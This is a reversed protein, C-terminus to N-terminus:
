DHSIVWIAYPSLPFSLSASLFLSFWLHLISPYFSLVVHSSSGSAVDPSGLQAWPLPCISAPIQLSSNAPEPHALMEWAVKEMQLTSGLRCTDLPRKFNMGVETKRYFRHQDKWGGGPVWNALKMFMIFNRINLTVRTKESAKAERRELRGRIGRGGVKCWLIRM